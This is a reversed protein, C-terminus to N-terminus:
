HRQAHRLVRRGAPLTAASYGIIWGHYPGSDCYSAFGIYLVGGTLLLSPRQNQCKSDFQVAGHSNPFSAHIQVPSGGLDAGTTIDLKHLWHQYNANSSGPNGIRTFTVVFMSGAAVDIVPTSVIGIEVAIDRYVGCAFGINGDPLTCSPELSRRWYPAGAVPDHADFAYVINHMTAVYVVDRPIPGPINVGPLYLPQAYIHGDVAREFLKGFSGANVNGTNLQTEQLNAATRGIDNRETIVSVM